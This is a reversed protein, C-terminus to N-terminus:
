SCISHIFLDTVFYVQSYWVVEFGGSEMEHGGSLGRSVCEDSPM